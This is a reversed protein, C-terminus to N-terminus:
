TIPRGNRRVSRLRQPNPDLSRHPHRRLRGAGNNESRKRDHGLPSQQRTRAAGPGGNGLAGSLPRAPQGDPVVYGTVFDLPRIVARDPGVVLYIPGTSQLAPIATRTIRGARLQIRVVDGGRGFLEWGTPVALLSRGIDITEVPLLSPAAVTAGHTPVPITAAPVTGTSGTPSSHGGALLSVAVVAVILGVLLLPYWRRWRLGGPPPSVVRAPQDGDDGEVPLDVGDHRGM